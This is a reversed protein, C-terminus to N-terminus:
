FDNIFTLVSVFDTVSVTVLCVNSFVFAENGVELVSLCVLCIFDGWRGHEKRDALHSLPREREVSPLESWEGGVASFSKPELACVWASSLFGVGVGGSGVVWGVSRALSQLAVLLCVLRTLGQSLCSLPARHWCHLATSTIDIIITSLIPRVHPSQACDWGVGAVGTCPGHVRWATHM